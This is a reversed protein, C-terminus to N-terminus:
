PQWGLPLGLHFGNIRDESLRSHIEIRDAGLPGHDASQRDREMRASGLNVLSTSM